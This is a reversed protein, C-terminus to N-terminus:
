PLCIHFYVTACTQHKFSSPHTGDEGDSHQVAKHVMVNPERIRDTHRGPRAVTNRIGGPLAPTGTEAIDVQQFFIIIDTEPMEKPPPSIDVHFVKKINIRFFIIREVVLRIELRRVAEDHDGAIAQRTFGFIELLLLICVAQDIDTTGGARKRHKTRHRIDVTDRHDVATDAIGDRDPM